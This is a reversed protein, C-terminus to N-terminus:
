RRLPGFGSSGGSTGCRHQSGDLAGVGALDEGEVAAHVALQIQNVDIADEGVALDGGGRELAVQQTQLLGMRLRVDAHVEGRDHAGAGRAESCHGAAAGVRKVLM